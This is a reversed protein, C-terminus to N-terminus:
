KLEVSGVTPNKGRIAKLMEFEKSSLPQIYYPVRKKKVLVSRNKEMKHAIGWVTFASGVGGIMYALWKIWPILEPLPVIGVSGTITAAIAILFAGLKTKWGGMSIPKEVSPSLPTYQTM